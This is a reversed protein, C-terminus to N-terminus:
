WTNRLIYFHLKFFVVFSYIRSSYSSIIGVDTAFYISQLM